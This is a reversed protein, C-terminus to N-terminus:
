ARLRELAETYLRRVGDIIEEHHALFDNGDRFELIHALRDLRDPNEPVLDDNQGMLFLRTRLDLLHQRAELLLEVEIANILGARGLRRIREPMDTTDGAHLASPYRMEHLHVLWEIDSLGGHGLKVNRRVHQPKVRETEIRRKMRALEKIREPTLPLGYASHMVLRLAEPDGQLQRAHGLAFREWMEMGELDYATLGEYTRVLLGKGGEPRLRLDIEIPAGLRRLESILALLHQAQIEAERHAQKSGILLLLDADSNPGFEATGLSGLALVDFPAFLRRCCHKVLEDMLGALTGNLDIEGGLVWLANAVAYAHVYANAVQRPPTSPPLGRIRESFDISEEIEGSLLMETLALNGKFYSILRPAKQLISKVRALSGENEALSQYYAQSEPLVDFWQLGGSGIQSELYGRHTEQPPELKLISRYLTSITRRQAELQSSLDGWHVCGMLKALAERAEPKEPIAHTQQDNVLQARHELKRLFTYGQILSTADAHELYGHRELAEIAGITPRERLDEFAYGHLLQFVQVLFEVDRIGGPGRKIDDGSAHDGIRVRMELMQELAVESLKPKFCVRQRMEEWRPCPTIARSRLLAQVEWPEAYLDYYTEYGKMSRVIPGSAGYPRLRLDVRYLHGRGMRDSLARTLQEGLKTAQKEDAGDELVYVLDVDSSYNLEEGALKGYSIIQLPRPTSPEVTELSLLILADALESIAKWVQPQPWADTLDNVTILLTWKQRLFRLRDLSHTYSTSASLLKRGELLVGECTPILRSTGPELVLSALEPNQILSDAIPQSAGMLFLLLHGVPLGVIQQMYLAPNGTANLWRELNTLAQDPSPNEALGHTLFEELPQGALAELRERVRENM